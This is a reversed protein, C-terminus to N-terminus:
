NSCTGTCPLPASRNLPCARPEAQTQIRGGGGVVAQAFPKVEESRLTEGTFLSSLPVVGALQQPFHKFLMGTCSSDDLADDM